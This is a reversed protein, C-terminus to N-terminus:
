HRIFVRSTTAELQQVRQSLEEYEQTKEANVNHLDELIRQNEHELAVFKKTLMHIESLVRMYEQKSLSEM